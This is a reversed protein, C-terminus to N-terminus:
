ANVLKPRQTKPDIEVRLGMETIEPTDVSRQLELQAVLKQNEENGKFVNRMSWIGWERLFPSDEDTVNQQLLLLIGDQERIEDQVHKRCYSCNGIIAVLDKRFGIYPSQYKSSKSTSDEVKNNDVAVKRIIAPPELDRLLRILFKVLGASVLMDVADEGQNKVNQGQCASIDRLLSLSYGIIDVDASGTPLRSKGRTSFDVVGVVNRLIKFLFLSFENSVVIDGLQENLIEALIGLLLAQEAGFSNMGAVNMDSNEDEAVPSLKSFLPSFYSDEFCIKFLLWKVWHEKYGVITATRIIEVVIDLGADGLLEVSSKNSGEVCTYIVMSLTDCTEKSQVRVIDLFGFPFMERWIVGRHQEGALSVNGLVQLVMHLTRYDSSSSVFGMSKILALIIAVGNQHIFLDQNKIEGACLNRLLKISLFLEEASPPSQCLRLVPVVIRKCALDLRGDSTKATEILCVLSEKVTSSGSAALLQEFVNEMTNM